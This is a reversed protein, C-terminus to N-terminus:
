LSDRSQLAIEASNDIFGDSDMVDCSVNQGSIEGLSLPSPDAQSGQNRCRKLFQRMTLSDNHRKPTSAPPLNEKNAAAM